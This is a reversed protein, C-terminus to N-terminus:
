SIRQRMRGAIKEPRDHPGAHIWIIQPFARFWTLQRKAFRRTNRKILEVAEDLDAIEGRLHALMEKYGLAQSAERGPGRESLRRVEELFGESMMRDVRRDIRDYLDDRDREIGFIPPGDDGENQWQQQLQSIPSGTKEFVELARIIRRLDNPHIKEAAAPDIGRLRDHLFPSGKEAAVRRLRSRLKWDASPGEFMGSTLAKLYLATGGVFLPVRGRAAIDSVAECALKVYRAVSFSECPDLIDIMHHPVRARDEASPKATGVDMGRRLQMSDLSIIEAYILEALCVGVSSKGSATPGVLFISNDLEPRNM